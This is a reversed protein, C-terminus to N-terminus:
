TLNGIDSSSVSANARSLNRALRTSDAPTQHPIRPAFVLTLVVMVILTVLRALNGLEGGVANDGLAFISWVLNLGAHIIFGPWISNWREVLWCFLMGGVFTITSNMASDALSTGADFHEAGFVLSSLMAAVWFPTGGWRRMQRFLFSRFQVEEVFPGILGFILLDGPPQPAYRAGAFLLVVFGAAVAVLCAVCGPPSLRGIALEDAARGPGARWMAMTAVLTLVFVCTIYLEYFGHPGFIRKSWDHLGIARLLPEIGWAAALGLALVIASRAVRAATSGSRAAGSMNRGM